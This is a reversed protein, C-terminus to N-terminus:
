KLCIPAKMNITELSHQRRVQMGANPSHGQINGSTQRFSDLYVTQLKVTQQLAPIKLFCITKPSAKQRFPNAQETVLSTFIHSYQEM